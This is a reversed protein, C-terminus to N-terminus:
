KTMESLALLYAGTGWWYEGQTLSRYYEATGPWTGESVGIFKFDKDVMKSLGAESKRIVADCEPGLIRLAKGRRYAFLFMATASTEEYATKDDLITRWLGSKAQYSVLNRALNRFITVLEDYEPSGKKMLPLIEACAMMVWGNGRAWSGESRKGTANEQCHIYFPKKGDQLIKLHLKIQKMAEEQWELGLYTGLKALIVSSYYVTDIYINPLDINHLIVGDPNRLSKTTIFDFMRKATEDLQMKVEPFFKAIEPYLLGFSWSGCFYNVSVQETLHFHVWDRVFERTIKDDRVELSRFLGYMALSQGWDTSESQARHRKCWSTRVRQLIEISLM